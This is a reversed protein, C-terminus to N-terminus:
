AEAAELASAADEWARLAVELEADLEAARIGLAAFDTDLNPMALEVALASKEAELAEVRRELEEVQRKLVWPNGRRVKPPESVERPAEPAANRAAQRAEEYKERYYSYGGPYATFEGDELLWVQNAVNQVFRRDHSVIILTGAFKELAAELSELMEVDLHNTPEDLVLLNHEELSLKLLALRAREGGSLQSVLKFQAEFPFLYAGLLDRADQDTDVLALVEQFLTRTPDVGRLQQDYYGLRVRSGLRTFGRLDDSPEFGLLTKVLTSKGTGNRGVIAIREGRRVTLDLGTFLSREGFGRTVHGALLVIEGSQGATFRVRAAVEPAPPAETMGESFRELRKEMARARNALKENRGGWIKMQATMAELRELERRENEFTAAQTKLEQDRAARYASYNGPYSRLTARSVLVTTTALNDLFARDHSVVLIAGPYARLFGELWEVMVIDLHNTPEDLLLIEPQAVLLRALALRTREGGSLGDVAQSERGTFGLASIVMDRRSGRAYGGRLRYHEELEHYETLRDHSANLALGVELTRLRTELDDLESFAGEVTELITASALFTPDQELLGIAVGPGIVVKGGNPEETHALLRLVTTKGAGNRGVLALRDGLEIALNVGRLVDQGGYFKDVDRLGALM